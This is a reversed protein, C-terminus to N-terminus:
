LKKKEKVGEFTGYNNGQKNVSNGYGENIEGVLGGVNGSEQGGSVFGQNQVLLVYALMRGYAWTM